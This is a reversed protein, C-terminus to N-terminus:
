RHFYQLYNTIMRCLHQIYPCSSVTNISSQSSVLCCSTIIDEKQVGHHAPIFTPCVPVSTVGRVDGFGHLDRSDEALMLGGWGGDETWLDPLEVEDDVLHSESYLYIADTITHRNTNLM